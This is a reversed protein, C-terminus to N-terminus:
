PPSSPKTRTNPKNSRRRCCSSLVKMSRWRSPKWAPFDALNVPHGDVTLACLVRQQVLALTELYCCIANLSTRRAPVTVPNGDLVIAIEVDANRPEFSENDKPM